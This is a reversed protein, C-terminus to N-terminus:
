LEALMRMRRRRSILWGGGLLGFIGVGALWPGANSGRPAPGSVVIDQRDKIVPQGSTRPLQSPEPTNEYWEPRWLWIVTAGAGGGTLTSPARRAPNSFGIGPIGGGGGGTGGGGGGTGGGGGSPAPAPTKAPAVGAISFTAGGADCTPTAVSFGDSATVTLEVCYVGDVEGPVDFFDDPGESTYVKNRPGKLVWKYTLTTGSLQDVTGPADLHITGATGGTGPIGTAGLPGIQITPLAALSVPGEAYTAPDPNPQNNIDPPPTGGFFWFSAGNGSVISYRCTDETYECQDIRELRVGGGEWVLPWRWQDAGAVGDTDLAEWNAFWTVDVPGSSHRELTVPAYSSRGDPSPSYDDLTFAVWANGGPDV